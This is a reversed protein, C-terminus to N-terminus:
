ENGLRPSVQGLEVLRRAVPENLLIGNTILEVSAGARKAAAVMELIQPHALPEGYGGFFVGPVPSFEGIGAMIRAFTGEAMVGPPEDWVNRMCIRCDLNCINTPEIYIRKLCAISRRLSLQEAGEEVQVLAGPTLGWRKLLDPPLILHGQQDVEIRVFVSKM